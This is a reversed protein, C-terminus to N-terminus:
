VPYSKIIEARGRVIYRGLYAPILYSDGKRLTDKFGNSSIVGEGKVCTIVYFRDNDSFDEWKSEIDVKKMGFYNNECFDVTSYGYELKKVNGRLNIAKSNFDIVDLSKEIHLERPRGYDFVRYTVDSNQQVELITLGEGISHVLGSNILFCDGEKVEVVNLYKEVDGNEIAKIFINRDCDKTGVILKAGPEAAIVYWAETKGQQNENKQAYEDNPHIQVSLNEKSNILKVLLPFNNLAINNGILKVGLENILESLSKGKLKGNAVVSMGNDHCAVDWSEGINSATINDRFLKFDEGGWVKEFYINEFRIPYM